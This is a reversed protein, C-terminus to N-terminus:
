IQFLDLIDKSLQPIKDEEVGNKYLLISLKSALLANPEPKKVKTRTSFSIVREALDDFNPNDGADWTYRMDRKSTTTRKIVGSGIVKRLYAPTLEYPKLTQLVNNHQKNDEYMKFLARAIKTHVPPKGIKMADMPDLGRRM